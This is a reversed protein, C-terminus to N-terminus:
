KRAGVLAVLEDVFGRMKESQAKMEESASSTEESNAANQQTIKDMETMAESMQEIGRTQDNSSVTIGTILEGMKAAQGAVERFADSTKSTIGRGNRIKEAIGEILGSTNRAAETVRLALTRVESAVVAFGAGAEGARAAEVAANLALLNTQFAIEDITKIIASTEMSAGSMEEMSATLEGMFTDTKIFLNKIDTVFNDAHAANEANKRTMFSMEELSSTAQESSAAQDSSGGALQRSAALIQGAASAVQEAGETLGEIVRYIPRVASQVLLLIVLVVIITLTVAVAINLYNMQRVPALAEAKDASVVVTWGLKKYKKYAALKEVGKLKYTILGEGKEMMELGFKETKINYKLLQSKEPYAVVLGDKKYMFTYGSKGFKVPAIFHRDFYNMNIIGFYVGVIENNMKLPSSVVFVPNGTARSKVVDSVFIKGSLSKKFYPENSINNGIEGVVSGAIIEGETNAVMVQEYYVYDKKIKALLETASDIVTEGLLDQVVAALMANESWYAFNLKISEVSVDILTIVSDAMRTIQMAISVQVTDKSKLYSITSSIGMSVIFLFVTPILFRKRLSWKM